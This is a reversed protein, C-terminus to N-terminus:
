KVKPQEEQVTVNTPLPVLEAALQRAIGLGLHIVAAKRHEGNLGKLLRFSAGGGSMVKGLIQQIQQKNDTEDTLLRVLAGIEAAATDVRQRVTGAM